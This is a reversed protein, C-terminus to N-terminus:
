RGLFLLHAEKGSQAPVAVVLQNLEPIYHSTRAGSVTKIKSAPEYQDASIQRFVNLSGSGCSIYIFNKDYFIDDTDGDIDFSDITKGTESNIVLLKAPHRCGIFLRHNIADLAMPFNASAEEIKWKEIITNKKVDIVALLHADPVNVFIKGMSEDLQFSEPHAPLKIDAIRKFSGADVAAIGGDGYGIYVRNLAKSYRVNDADRGIKLTTIIQYNSADVIKCEGNGGNAVFIFNKEPIYGIGQPEDFGKISRVVKKNKVDVVEVSNNGLAAIYILQQKSNYTLHDIRGSVNPLPVSAILKLTADSNITQGMCKPSLVAVMMLLKIFKKLAISKM